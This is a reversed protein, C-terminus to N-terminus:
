LWDPLMVPNIPIARSMVWSLCIREASKVTGKKRRLSWVSPRLAASRRWSVSAKSSSPKSSPALILRSIVALREPESPAPPLDPVDVGPRLRFHGAKSRMVLGDHVKGRVAEATRANAATAIRMGVFGALISCAAGFLYAYATEPALLWFLLLVLAVGGLVALVRPDGLADVFKKKQLCISQHPPCSLPRRQRARGTQLRLRPFRDFDEFLCDGKVRRRASSRSRRNHPRAM